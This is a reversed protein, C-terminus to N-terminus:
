SGPRIDLVPLYGILRFPMQILGHKEGVIASPSSV